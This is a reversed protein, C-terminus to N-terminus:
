PDLRIKAQNIVKAWRAVESELFARFQDPTGGVPEAGLDLIRARVEPLRVAKAVEAALLEVVPRPTAAPALLGAWTGAVFGPVGAESLTPIDTAIPWREASALGFARIKGARLMPLMASMTDFMIQIHGGVLDALAPATGKYPIHNLSVGQQQAFLEMTLHAAAGVGSSGFSISGPKARALAVLEKVDRAAFANSAVLILPAVGVLSIPQFSKVAHFPLKDYLTQNATHGAIVMGITYGDAVSKSLIEAGIIGNAGPRNDILFPQGLSKAIPDTVARATLDTFGGPTFPVIVRVPKVPYAPQAAATGAALAAALALATSSPIRSM